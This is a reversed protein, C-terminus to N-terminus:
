LSSSSFIFVERVEKPRAGDQRLKQIAGHFEELASDPELAPHPCLVTVYIQYCHHALMPPPRPLLVKDKNDGTFVAITTLLKTRQVVRHFVVLNLMTGWLDLHLLPTLSAM